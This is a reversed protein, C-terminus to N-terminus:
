QVEIIVKKNKHFPCWDPFDGIFNPTGRSDSLVKFEIACYAPYFIERKVLTCSSCDKIEKFHYSITIDEMLIEGM